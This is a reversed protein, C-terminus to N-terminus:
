NASSLILLLEVTNILWSFWYNIGTISYNIADNVLLETFMVVFHRVKRKALTQSRKTALGRPNPDWQVRLPWKLQPSGKRVGSAAALAELIGPADWFAIRLCGQSLRFTM